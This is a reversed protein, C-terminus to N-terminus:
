LGRLLGYLAGALAAIGIASKWRNSGSIAKSTANLELFDSMIDNPHYPEAASIAANFVKAFDNWAKLQRRSFGIALPDKAPNWVKGFKQNFRQQAKFFQEVASNYDQALRNSIQFKLPSDVGFSYVPM